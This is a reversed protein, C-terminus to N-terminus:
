GCVIPWSGAAASLSGTPLVAPSSSCMCQLLSSAGKGVKRRRGHVSVDAGISSRMSLASWVSYSSRVTDDPLGATDSDPPGLGHMDEKARPYGSTPSSNAPSSGDPRRPLHCVAPSSATCCTHPVQM